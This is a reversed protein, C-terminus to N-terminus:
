GDRERRGAETLLDEWSVSRRRTEETEREARRITAEAGRRAREYRLEPASPRTACRGAAPARSPADVLGLWRRILDMM